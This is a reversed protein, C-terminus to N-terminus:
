LVMTEFRPALEISQLLAEKDQEKLYEQYVDSCSASLKTAMTFMSRCTRANGKRDSLIDSLVKLAFEEPSLKIAVKQKNLFSECNRYFRFAYALQAAQERGKNFAFVIGNAQCIRLEFHLLLKSSIHKVPETVFNNDLRYLRERCSPCKGGSLKTIQFKCIPCYKM